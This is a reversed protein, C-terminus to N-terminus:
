KFIKELRTLQGLENIGEITVRFSKGSDNNFFPITVRKNRPDMLLFPNWYLTIRYDTEDPLNNIDYNPQYFEKLASYGSITVKNLGQINTKGSSGKKTYVAVAGGAGGGIAGFFPPDFVKIMAVDSMPTSQLLQIDTNLENLFVDTRSGRRTISGGDIGHTEIQLGAVKGQLYDLISMAGLAFPDDEVAFIRANGGNFLGSTYEKELKAEKSVPKSTVTVTELVIEKQLKSQSLFLESQQVTKMVLDHAPLPAFYVSSLAAKSLPASKILGNNFSFSATNTLRKNKDDNFQYYFRVSDFFYMGDQKFSGDPKVPISIFSKGNNIVGSLSRDKLEFADLGYANGQISLYNSPLHTISPFRGALVKDWSFRRWGNTMMVLDLQQRVSDEDSLFYYAPDYVYGKLDSTMLMRSFINDRSDEKMDVSADTVSVSLNSKLNGGVDVQIVNKGKPSIHKDVLHLDTNFLYGYNNVFVIREALPQQLKNFLTVQLIGDALSDTPIPVTVNTKVSLNIHAAYVTQQNMQAIITFEKLEDTAQDQRKLIFYTTDKLPRLSLSATASKSDPLQTEHQVGAPDKWVAKYITGQAATINFFGMGRHMSTFSVQSQGRADIIVGKVDFPKGDQDNTKFAVRCDIGSVLDGGEPFLTLSYSTAKTKIANGSKIMNVPICYLMSDFNLMWDTYARVYYRSNASEAPLEFSSAAGAQVIPMTKRRVVTGQEDLLEAYMTTSIQSPVNGNFIYGKFWITEGANYFSKDLQLYIKEQPYKTNLLTLLSDFIQQSSASLYGTIMLFLFYIKKEM